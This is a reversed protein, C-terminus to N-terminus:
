SLVVNAIRRKNVLSLRGEHRFPIFPEPGNLFDLVRSSAEPLQYRTSGELQTGDDLAIRLRVEIDLDAAVPDFAGLLEDIDEDKGLTVIAISSRRVFGIAGEATEVALFESDGNLVDDAREPGLRREAFEALFLSFREVRGPAFQIEVQTKYKPVRYRESM